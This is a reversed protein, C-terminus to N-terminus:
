KATKLHLVAVSQKPLSLRFHSAVQIESRRISIAHPTRFSNFGGSASAAILFLEGRPDLQRGDIQVEINLAQTPHVNVAKLFLESGNTNRSAVADLYPVSKGERTTDFTPSQVTVTFREAGQHERYLQNVLYIPTVFLGHRSAQIIGGPWGNVLDSVATMAIFDSNREFVNMLRAAYLAAEISHARDIPLGLGWENIALTIRRQPVLERVRRRMEGYFREYYLPRAMLNLPDGAMENEMYYHHIALHDIQSGALRLVTNNWNTDNDGVAIIQINTDVARMAAAYRVLNSAYTAADSHGRVWNGWIENGVEWFRVGHPNPHGNDARLAGHTTKRSGNCYEIWAAAEQATAGLGEVNVTITPEAGLRRCFHIYEDTGFDSPEPENNWSLNPWTVRRDRPGVGWMWHYDQAVNGGPWRIFAPRLAEIKQFVDARTGDVADGPILSVQDIWLLGRGEFLIAFRALPDSRAPHLAFSHRQWDNGVTELTAEAYINGETVDQELAVRIRGKFNSGKIWLYGRYDIGDRVPIRGQYLGHRPIVGESLRVHLAHNSTNTALGKRPPYFDDADWRFALGYDDNRDDPYREWHRPLGLSNPPSEFSRDRILEAHLGGKIGEHMFEIFQGYLLPSIANESKRADIVIRAPLANEVQASVTCSAGFTALFFGILSVRLLPM